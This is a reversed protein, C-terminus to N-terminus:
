GSAKVERPMFFEKLIDDPDKRAATDYATTINHNKTNRDLYRGDLIKEFNTPRIIWDLSAQWGRDNRGMLFPSARVSRFLSRWWQLSQREKAGNWRARLAKQRQTGWVKPQPLEPLVEGYIAIIEQHPCDPTSVPPKKDTNVISDKSELEKLDKPVPIPVPVPVPVPANSAGIPGKHTGMAGGNKLDQYEEKTIGTIGQAVLSQYLKNDWRKIAALRAENERTEAESAWPNHIAWDHIAYGGEDLVDLLALETLIEAFKGEEGHWRSAVEIDEWDAGLLYGNPQYQAVWQWLILLSKVGELGLRRELKLIKPNDWFGLSLRIDTNM